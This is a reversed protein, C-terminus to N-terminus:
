RSEVEVTVIYDVRAMTAVLRGLCEPSCAHHIKSWNGSMARLLFTQMRSDWTTWTVGCVNCETTTDTHTDM